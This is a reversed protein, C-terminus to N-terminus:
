LSNLQKLFTKNGFIDSFHNRKGKWDVPSHEILNQFWSLLSKKEKLSLPQYLLSLVTEYPENFINRM